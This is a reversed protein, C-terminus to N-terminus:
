GEVLKNKAWFMDIEYGTFNPHPFSMKGSKVQMWHRNSVVFSLEAQIDPKGCVMTNGTDWVDLFVGDKVYCAHKRDGSHHHVTYGYGEAVIQMPLTNAM